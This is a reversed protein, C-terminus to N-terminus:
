LRTNKNFRESIKISCYEGCMTCADKVAPKSSKRYQKCKDPDLAIEFQKKWDRAFRAKSISIDREMAGPINKAIDAAHAAIKSAIVGDKVDQITPLRLHEAPTVYCLFDAGYAAAMAGGIASTIHDYGPAIDTVIPGLVYFPAGHCITKQLDINKKIQNLPVHGPGEVIVQVGKKFAREQLQGLIKLEDIQPKDSADVIAGPRMGDGLSLTIDFEKAIAIVEDFLSYFPNEAGNKIIWEALLAGGRSVIGMTRKSKLLTSVTKKTVGSHITFFDVGERAQEELVKIFFSAPIDTTSGYKKAGCVAIEYIPVTGLPINSKELIQKRVFKLNKSTSLDMVCDAGLAELMKLKKLEFSISSSDESTGINANIKTKLGNGVACPNKLNRIKNKPVVIKGSAIGKRLTDIVVGESSAIRKLLSNVKGKKALEILTM